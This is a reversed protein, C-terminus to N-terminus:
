IQQLQQDDYLYSSAYIRTICGTERNVFMECVLLNNHIWIVVFLIVTKVEIQRIVNSPTCVLM